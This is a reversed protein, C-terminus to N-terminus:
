FSQEFDSAFRSRLYLFAVLRVGEKFGDSYQVKKSRGLEFEM